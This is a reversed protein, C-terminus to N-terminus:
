HFAMSLAHSIKELTLDQKEGMPEFGRAKFREVVVESVNAKVDPYAKFSTPVGVSEFFANTKEIAKEFIEDDSGSLNLVRKGYQVMKELKHNKRVRMNSAWVIALTRAHDIGYLATLEHGINHTSWDQPVGGGFVSSLAMTACWVHNARASYDTPNAYSKPGEELLTMLVSEAFRDQLPAGAPFTLYQELVHVYADVIGNGVQRQDLSFTMTPDLLSFQPFVTPHGFAMKQDGRSIVSFMNMESGTAPLTLVVGFPLSKKIERAGGLCIQWPDKHTYYVAAAIFKASDIVSGGGVALVFDVKERRIIEVAEMAKEYTPNPQVGGLEVIECHGLSKIIQEYVGNKKISGGGYLLMVKQAPLLRTLKQVVGQGFVIKTPNYFEFSEM